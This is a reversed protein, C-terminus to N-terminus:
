ELPEIPKPMQAQRFLKRATRTRSTSTTTARRSTPPASRGPSNTRSGTAEVLSERSRVGRLAHAPDQQLEERRAPLPARLVLRGETPTGKTFFLLNTKIGTYPNFVGNPLRVITHLNCTSWCSAGQHPDQHRRRVAHRRAAGRRRPRRDQAAAHHPGPVPRRNRPHPLHRPLQKSATKKWAASPRTPSSSTSATARATTTPAALTNDHRVNTPVDIGHLIMNTTCLMHPLPKKEVGHHQAAPTARRRGDERLARARTRHRLHPLRRHRLRPRPNERGAPPSRPRGHLPHRARTYYEGANGASRCTACSRNTSTASPHRDQAKNFDIECIKNIVQRMLHGSKMYNYADEFVGRIVFGRRDAHGPQLNKLTPFLQINVFDLLEDGTMGEPDAAWNRWRLHEPMPSRYDGDDSSCSTSPKATTTSRSSSCGSSSASASPTAM